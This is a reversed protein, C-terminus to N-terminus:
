KLLQCCSGYTVLQWHLYIVGEFVVALFYLNTHAFTPKSKQKWKGRRLLDRIYKIKYLSFIFENEKQVFFFPELSLIWKLLTMDWFSLQPEQTYIMLCYIQLWGSFGLTQPVVLNQSSCGMGLWNLKRRHCFSLSSLYSLLLLHLGGPSCRPQRVSGEHHSWQHALFGLRLLGWLAPAGWGCHSTRHRYWRFPCPCTTVMRFLHITPGHCGRM